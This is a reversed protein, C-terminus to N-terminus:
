SRKPSPQRPAPWSRRRLDDQGIRLRVMDFVYDISLIRHRLRSDDPAGVSVTSPHPPSASVGGSGLVAKVGVLAVLGWQTPGPTPGGSPGPSGLWLVRLGTGKETTKALRGSSLDSDDNVDRATSVSQLGGAVFRVQTPAPSHGLTPCCYVTPNAFEGLCPNM